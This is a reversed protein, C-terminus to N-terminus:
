NWHQLPLPLPLLIDTLKLDAEDVYHTWSLWLHM